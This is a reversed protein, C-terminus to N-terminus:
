LAKVRRDGRCFEIRWSKWLHCISDFFGIFQSSIKEFAMSGDAENLDSIVPRAQHGYIFGHLWGYTSDREVYHAIDALSSGAQRGINVVIEDFYKRAM